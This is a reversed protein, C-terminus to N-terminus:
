RRRILAGVAAAVVVVLLLLLLLLLMLLVVVLPPPLEEEIATAATSPTATSCRRLTLGAGVCRPCRVAFIRPPPRKTRVTPSSCWPRGTHRM